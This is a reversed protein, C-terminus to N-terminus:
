EAPTGAPLTVCFISGKGPESEFSIRGGHAEVIQKSISLGMGFSEEGNTGRRQARTFVDFIKSQMDAPIGLGNDIVQILVEGPRQEMRITITANRPSFKIANTILNTFVRWISEQNLLLTAPITQLNLKQTKAQAKHLLMEVCYHLLQEMDAPSKELNQRANTHLLDTVLQLSNNGSTKLMELLQRDADSREPEELMVDAIATMNNIPNRLDHAVMKLLKKNEEQSQKLANLASRMHGNLSTLKKIQYRSRKLYYLIVFTLGIAMFLFVVATVLWATKIQSNKKLLTLEFAHEQDKLTETLDTHKLASRVLTMSDDFARYRKMYEYAKPIDGKKEYYKWKLNIWKGIVQDAELSKGRKSLIDKELQNLLSDAQAFKDQKLFLDTLKNKATQADEVARGPRDNILISERLHKEAESFNKLRIYNGGINGEVVGRAVAIDNERQTFFQARDAISQLALKYYVIASDPMKAREFCLAITNMLGQPIIFSQYFNNSIPCHMIEGYAKKAFPIAKLFEEQQYCIKALCGDLESLSCSDLNQEAFKRADFYVKFAQVYKKELLLLSGKKVQTQTYEFPYHNKVHALVQEMSDICAWRAAVDPQYDTYYNGKLNYKKWLDTAGPHSLTAYASDLQHLAQQTKGARLLRTANECVSDAWAPHGPYADNYSRCAQFVPLFGTILLLYLTRM